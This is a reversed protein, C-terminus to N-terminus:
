TFCHYYSGGYAGYSLLLYMYMSACRTANYRTQLLRMVGAVAGDKSPNDGLRTPCEPAQFLWIKDYQTRNLIMEYFHRDNFHYHRPMCRLYISIDNPGPKDTFNAVLRPTWLRRADDACLPYNQFYGLMKICRPKKDSLLDYLNPKFSETYNKNRWDRPRDSLFFQEKDCVERESSNLQLADYQFAVCLYM